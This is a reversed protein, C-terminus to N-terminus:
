KSMEMRLENLSKAMSELVKKPADGFLKNYKMIIIPSDPKKLEELEQAIEKLRELSKVLDYVNM